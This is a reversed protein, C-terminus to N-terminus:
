PPEGEQPSMPEEATSESEPGQNFEYNRSRLWQVLSFSRPHPTTEAQSVTVRVSVLGTQALPDVTISYVWDPVELVPENQVEVLPVAGARLEYLKTQCLWQATALQEAAEANKHGVNALEALVIVCGLLIATALLVELLSFGRRKV